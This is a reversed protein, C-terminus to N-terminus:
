SAEPWALPPGLQPPGRTARRPCAKRSATLWSRAPSWLTGPRLGPAARPNPPANMGQGCAGRGIGGVYRKM